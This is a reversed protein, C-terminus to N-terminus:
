LFLVIAQHFLTPMPLFELCGDAYEILRNTHLALYESESWAGQLPHLLAMEWTPEGRRSPRPLAVELDQTATLAVMPEGDLFYWAPPQAQESEHYDLNPM